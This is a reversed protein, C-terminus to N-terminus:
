RLVLECHKLDLTKSLVLALSICSIPWIVKRVQPRKSCLLCSMLIPTQIARLIPRIGASLNTRTMTATAYQVTAQTYMAVAEHSFVRIPYRCNLWIDHLGKM